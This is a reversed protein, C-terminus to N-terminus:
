DHQEEQEDMHMKIEAGDRLEETSIGQVVMRLNPSGEYVFSLTACITNDPIELTIKM